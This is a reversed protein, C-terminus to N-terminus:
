SGLPGEAAIEYQLVQRKAMKVDGTAPPDAKLGAIHAALDAKSAWREFLIVRGSELPDAAFTYEICGTEARSRRMLEVRDALFRDRQTPEVEFFGAVILM